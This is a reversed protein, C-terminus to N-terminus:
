KDGMAAANRTLFLQAHKRWGTRGARDGKLYRIEVRTLTLRVVELNIM